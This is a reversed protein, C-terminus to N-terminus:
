RSPMSSLLYTVDARVHSNQISLLFGVETPSKEPPLLEVRIGNGATSNEEPPFRFISMATNFLSLKGLGIAEHLEGMSYSPLELARLSDDRARKLLELPTTGGLDLRCIMNALLPGLTTEDGEVAGIQSQSCGFTVSQSGNCQRLMIGWAVQVLNAVTVGYQRCFPHVLRPRNITVHIYPPSGKDLLSSDSSNLVSILCPRTGSLHAKWYDKAPEPHSRVWSIYRGLNLGKPISALSTYAQRLQQGILRFSRNDFLAHNMYFSAYVVSGSAKTLHLHHPPQAAAFHPKAMTELISKLGTQLEVTAYSISPDMEKLIVQQFAGGSSPSSTFVARLMPQAMCLAKWAAAVKDVDVCQTAGEPTLKLTLCEWYTHRQTKLQAFLIGEQVPACPLVSQVNSIDIGISQLYKQISELEEDRVGLLPMESLTLNPEKYPLQLAFDELTAKLKSIWTALRDQYAIGSSYNIRFHLQRERSEASVRLLGLLLPEEVTAGSITAQEDKFNFLLEVDSPRLPDRGLMCSAFVSSGDRLVARYADKVTAVVNEVSAGSGIEAVIPVLSAFCGVTRSWTNLSIDGIERGDHQSYLAPSGRDSFTKRFSLLVATLM